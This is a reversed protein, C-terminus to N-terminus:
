YVRNLFEPADPGQVDIKGLQSVDSVGVNRRM